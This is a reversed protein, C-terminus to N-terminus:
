LWVQAASVPFKEASKLPCKEADRSGTLEKSFSIIAVDNIVIGASIRVKGMGACIFLNEEKQVWRIQSTEFGVHLVFFQVVRFLFSTDLVFMQLELAKSLLRSLGLM